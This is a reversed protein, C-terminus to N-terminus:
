LVSSLRVQILAASFSRSSIIDGTVIDTLHGAAGRAATAHSSAVLRCRIAALFRNQRKWTVVPFCQKSYRRGVGPRGCERVGGVVDPVWFLVAQCMHVHSSIFRTIDYEKGGSVPVNSVATVKRLSKRYLQDWQCVWMALPSRKPSCSIGFDQSSTFHWQIFTFFFTDIQLALPMYIPRM